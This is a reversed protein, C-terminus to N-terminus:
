LLPSPLTQLIVKRCKYISTSSSNVHPAVLAVPLKSKIVFFSTAIIHPGFSLDVISQPFELVFYNFIKSLHQLSSLIEAHKPSVSSTINDHIFTSLLNQDLSFHFAFQDFHKQSSRDLIAACIVYKPNKVKQLKNTQKFHSVHMWVSEFFSDEFGLSFVMQETLCKLNCYESSQFNSNSFESIQVSGIQVLGCSTCVYDGSSFDTIVLENCHTCKEQHM